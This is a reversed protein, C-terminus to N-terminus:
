SKAKETQARQEDLERVLAALTGRLEETAQALGARGKGVEVRFPKGILLDVRPRFRRGSGAPRKTGRVAVPLVVADTGRLLWAAGREATTVNGDGRTGEPFVGVLGGERLIKATTLLPARDPEGRRVPVQGIRRLFWGIAGTFMEEKVLFVSRRPLMGFIMQPEVLSSHNAILLVPGTRPVRELGRVRIRYAPRFLVKGIARGFDHLRGSAGEPLGPPSM